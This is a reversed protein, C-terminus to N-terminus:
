CKQEASRLVKPLSFNLPTSADKLRPSQKGMLVVLHKAILSLM